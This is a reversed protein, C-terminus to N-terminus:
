SGAGIAAGALIAAMGGLMVLKLRRQLRGWPPAARFADRLCLALLPWPALAAIVAYASRDYGLALKLPLPLLVIVFILLLACLRAAAREGFHLPFSSWGAARDGPMDEADKAIERALTALLAFAAPLATARPARPFEPFVVALACLLAVALNGWLPFRKLRLNYVALLLAMGAALAGHDVGVAFACALAAVTLLGAGLGAARPTMRGAVLPRDPRNVRDAALDLLDNHVNGAAALLSMAAAGLSAQPWGLGPEAFARVCAEGLWVGGGAVLANPLRALRAWDVIARFM